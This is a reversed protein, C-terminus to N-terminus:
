FSRLAAILGSNATQSFDLTGGAAVAAITVAISTTRPSNASGAWTETLLITYSGAAGTGDYAWGPAANITLGAPLGAASIVSGSTAGAIVGSAPVTLTFSVASLSLVGLTASADFEGITTLGVLLGADNIWQIRRTM